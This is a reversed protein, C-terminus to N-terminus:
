RINQAGVEREQFLLIATIYFIAILNLFYIFSNIVYSMPIPKGVSIPDAMWFEQWNPIIAYIFGAIINGESASLGFLYPSMLGLMFIFFSVTLNGVFSVITSLATSIVGMAIIAMSLLLLAIATQSQLGVVKDHDPRFHAFAAWAPIAILLFYIIHQSFNRHALYNQGAAYLLGIVMVIFYGWFLIQDFRFQDIAVRVAILTSLSCLFCYVIMVGCIGTIKASIFLPRSIPKSLVLLATGNKIERYIANSACLVATIMGFMMMTAMDSDRVLKEQARFVFLAFAPMLGNLILSLLLLVVYVPERLSEKFTNRAINFFVSIM